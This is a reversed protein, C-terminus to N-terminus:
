QFFNYPSNDQKGWDARVPEIPLEWFPLLCNPVAHYSPGFLGGPLESSGRLSNIVCGFDGRLAWLPPKKRVRKSSVGVDRGIGM